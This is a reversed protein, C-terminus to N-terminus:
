GLIGAMEAMVAARRAAADVNLGGAYWEIRADGEPVTEDGVVSIALARGARAEHAVILEALEDRMAPNARVVLPTGRAVQELVRDLAEDIARAPAADIAHGALMEAAHLAVAGADSVMARAVTDFRDDLADIAGHLADTAALLAEGRESRAQALGAEFGDARARGLEAHHDAQMRAIRAELEAIQERLHEAPVEAPEGDAPDAGDAPAESPHFFVREFGFPQITSRAHM